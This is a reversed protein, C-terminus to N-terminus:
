CNLYQSYGLPHDSGWECPQEQYPISHKTSLEEGFYLTSLPAGLPYGKNLDAEESESSEQNEQVPDPLAEWIDRIAFRVRQVINQIFDEDRLVRCTYTQELNVLYIVLYAQQAGTTFIQAQLQQYASSGKRIQIEPKPNADVVKLGTESGKNISRITELAGGKDEAAVTKIELCYKVKGGEYIVGDPQSSLLPLSENVWVGSRALKYNFARSAMQFAKEECERGSVLQAPGQWGRAVSKSELLDQLRDIGLCKGSIPLLRSLASANVIKLSVHARRFAQPCYETCNATTHQLQPLAQLSRVIDGLEPISEQLKEQYKRTADEYYAKLIASVTEMDQKLSTSAEFLDRLGKKIKSLHPNDESKRKGLSAYKKKM